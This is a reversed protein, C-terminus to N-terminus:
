VRGDQRLRSRSRRAARNRPDALVIEAAPACRMRLNMAPILSAGSNTLAPYPFPSALPPLDPANLRAPVADRRDAPLAVVQGRECLDELHALTSLGAARALKPDLGAYVRAVLEPITALARRRARHPDLGRAPPPSPRAGARLAAARRGARRPRALVIREGRARVKDLSAMYAGMSGDPPAVVSTSWAMVHDGSFLAEEECFRSASITPAIARPRSRRSPSGAGRSASATACPRRRACLRPRAVFRPRRDRGGEARVAGGRRHAGRDGAKAAPSCATTAIRTPSSSPRSRRARSRRSFRRSIATTARARISSRLRAVARSLLHLHRQLHLALREARCPPAGAALARSRARRRRGRIPSSDPETTTPWASRENRGARRSSRRRTM